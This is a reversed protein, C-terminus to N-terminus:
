EPHESLIDSFSDHCYSAYNGSQLMEVTVEMTCYSKTTQLSTKWDEFNFDDTQMADCALEDIYWAEQAGLAKAIKYIEARLHCYGREDAQLDSMRFCTNILLCGPLLMYGDDGDEDFETEIDNLESPKMFWNYQYGYDDSEFNLGSEYPIVAYLYQSM